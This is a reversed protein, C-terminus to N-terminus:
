KLDKSKVLDRVKEVATEVQNKIQCEWITLVDWGKDNLEREKKKDREINSEFKNKWFDVNSKPFSPNCHPCRHWFCGNVFVAVKRGPFAIDPKGPAKKWHIRYGKVGSHWLAKRLIVEPKTNKDKIASMTLSTTENQPIPARGDRLFRNQKAM